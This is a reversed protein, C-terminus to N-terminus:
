EKKIKRKILKNEFNNTKTKQKSLKHTKVM